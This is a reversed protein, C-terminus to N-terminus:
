CLRMTVMATARKIGDRTREKKGSPERVEDDLCRANTIEERRRKGAEFILNNINDNWRQPVLWRFKRFGGLELLTVKLPDEDITKQLRDLKVTMADRGCTIQKRTFMPAANKSEDSDLTLFLSCRDYVCKQFSSSEVVSKSTVSKGDIMSKVITATATVDKEVNIKSFVVLPKRGMAVMEDYAAQADKM